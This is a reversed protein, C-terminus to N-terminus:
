ILLKVIWKRHSLEMFPHEHDICSQVCHKLAHILEIMKSVVTQWKMWKSGNMGIFLESNIKLREISCDNMM